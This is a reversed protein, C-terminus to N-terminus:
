GDAARSTSMSQNLHHSVSDLRENVARHLEAQRGVLVDRLREIRVSTEGHLRALESLRQDAAQRERQRLLYVAAFGAVLALLFDYAGVPPYSGDHLRL